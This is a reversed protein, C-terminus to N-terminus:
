TKFLTKLTQVQKKSKGGFFLFLSSVYVLMGLVTLTLLTVFPYWSSFDIYTQAGKIVGIMVLSCIAPAIMLKCMDLLRIPLYRATISARIPLVVYQSVTIGIVLAELGFWVGIGGFVLISSLDVINLWLTAKTKALSILLAPLFFNLIIAFVGMTSISLLLASQVYDAGFAFTVFQPALAGLGLFCPIVIFSTLELVKYYAGVKDHNNVRSMIPVMMKNIPSLTTQSLVDQGKKAISIFAFANSGLMFAAYFNNMKRQFYQIVAVGLLPLCFTVLERWHKKEVRLKPTFKASALLLVLTLLAHLIKQAILSWLGAGMWILFIAILGSLITSSALIATLKANDFQRELKATFVSQLGIIFPLISLVWIIHAAQLSHMFYAAGAGASALVISILASFSAIFVFTSSAFSDEWKRRQILNQGVGVHPFINAFEVVLLCFILLAFEEISLIRALLAYIVFDIGNTTITRLMNWLSGHATKKKLVM